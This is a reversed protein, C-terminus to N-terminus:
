GNIIKKGSLIDMGLDNSPLGHPNVNLNVPPAPTFTIPAVTPKEPEQEVLVELMGRIYDLKPNEKALEDICKQLINKM